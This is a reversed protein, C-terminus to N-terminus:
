FQALRELVTAWLLNALLLGGLGLGLMERWGRRPKWRGAFVLQTWAAAVATGVCLANNEWISSLPDPDFGYPGLNFSRVVFEQILGAGTLVFCVAAAVRGPGWRVRRVGAKEPWPRLAVFGVGLGAVALFPLGTKRVRASFEWGATVAPIRNIMTLPSHPFTAAYRERLTLPSDLHRDPHFKLSKLSNLIRIRPSTQPTILGLAAQLEDETRTAVWTGAVLSLLLVLIELQLVTRASQVRIM